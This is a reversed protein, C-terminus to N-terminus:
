YVNLCKNGKIAWKILWYILSPIQLLTLWLLFDFEDLISFGPKEDVCCYTSYALSSSLIFIFSILIWLLTIRVDTKNLLQYKYKKNRNISWLFGIVIFSLLSNQLFHGILNLKENNCVILAFPHRIIKDYEEISLAKKIKTIDNRAEVSNPITAMKNEIYDFSFGTKNKLINNGENNIYARDDHNIYSQATMKWNESALEDSNKSVQYISIFFSAPLWLLCLSIIIRKLM